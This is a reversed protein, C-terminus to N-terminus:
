GGAIMTVFLVESGDGLPTEYDEADNMDVFASIGPAFCGRRRDWLEEPFRDGYRAAIERVVDGVTASGALDLEFQQCGAYHGLIGLM